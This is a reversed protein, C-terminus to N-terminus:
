GSTEPLEVRTQSGDEFTLALADGDLVAETVRGSGEAFITPVVGDFFGYSVVEYGAADDDGPLNQVVFFFSNRLAFCVPAGELEFATEETTGPAMIYRFSWVGDKEELWCTYQDWYTLTDTRAEGSEVEVVEDASSVRRTEAHDKAVDEGRSPEALFARMVAGGFGFFVLAGLAIGLLIAALRIWAAKEPRGAARARELAEDGQRKMSRVDSHLSRADKSESESFLTRKARITM